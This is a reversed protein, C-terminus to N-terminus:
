FYKFRATVKVTISIDLQLIKGTVKFSLPSLFNHEESFHLFVHVQKNNTARQRSDKCARIFISKNSYRTVIINFRKTSRGKM